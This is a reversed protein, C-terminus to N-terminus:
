WAVETDSAGDDDLRNLLQDHPDDARRTLDDVIQQYAALSVVVDRDEVGNLLRDAEARANTGPPRNIKRRCPADTTFAALVATELATKHAPDRVVYGAGPAMRAHSAVLIGSTRIEIGLSGLRHTVQVERGALAHPVSYANGEFPVLGSPDVKNSAAIVAPFPAAPLPRLPELGAIDAVTPRSRGRATLFAGVADDGILGALRAVPRSRKDSVRECWRDFAQQAQAMTEANMTRWFRQTAYHISKEVSGKRNGRRPPCAVVGAEYHKAVPRFSARMIGTKPDVVTGMRDFRWRRANGGLRRLVGDMADILCPQTEDAAFVGRFKGSCPLSGVLLHADEAPDWPAGPLEVWDWQIEEAPPHEIEITVRGKVGACAECHPRLQHTRLGRTFSPYSLPYGLAEVEDFLATAWV